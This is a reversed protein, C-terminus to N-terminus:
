ADIGASRADAHRPDSADNGSTAGTGPPAGYRVHTRSLWPGIGLAILALEGAQLAGLFQVKRAIVEHRSRTSGDDAILRRLGDRLRDLQAQLQALKEVLRLAEERTLAQVGLTLKALSRRMVELEYRRDVAGILTISCMNRQADSRTCM